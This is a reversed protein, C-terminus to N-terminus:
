RGLAEITAGPVGSGAFLGSFVRKGASPGDALEIRVEAMMRLDRYFGEDGFAARCVTTQGPRVVGHFSVEDLHTFLAVLGELEPRSLELSAHYFGWAVIGTQAGFEVLKVGPVVPNGRFHGECDKETWTHTAVIHEEDVEDIRDVFQMPPDYPMLPLIENATLPNTFSTTM